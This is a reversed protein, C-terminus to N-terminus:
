RAQYMLVFDIIAKYWEEPDKISTIYQFRWIENAVAKTFPGNMKEPARNMHLM